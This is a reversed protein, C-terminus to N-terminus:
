KPKYELAYCDVGQILLQKRLETLSIDIESPVDMKILTKQAYLQGLTKGDVNFLKGKLRVRM